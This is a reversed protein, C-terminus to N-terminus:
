IDDDEPADGKSKYAKTAYEGLNKLGVRMMVTTDQVGSTEDALYRDATLSVDYCEHTYNVTFISRRLGRETEVNSLDYIADGRLSWADSLLVTSGLRVQERSNPYETGRAGAAYLYYGDLAVDGWQTQAYLEHRESALTDSDVQFRYSLDHKGNDFSAGVAGVYDSSREELGSGNPFDNENNDFFNYSQGLFSTLRGGSYNYLGAKLGYAVHSQDEVRDLGTFRNGDLINTADLQVDQSDENPIKISNSVDPAAYVTAVPELKIQYKDFSSKMPYSATLQVNPIFRGLQQNEDYAANMSHAVSNTVVYGDVRAGVESDLVLGLPAIDRRGWSARSSARWMDQGNGDRALSLISADVDWRGGLLGNPNGLWEGEAYPLINPQDVKTTRLDQFAEAKIIAYDRDEFREAYIDNDLIYDDSFAYQRLYQEDTTLNIDARARWNRNIDWGGKGFIHGRVEDDKSVAAGAVSDTRGSSTISADSEFYANEWRKRFENRLLANQKTTPMVTFTTDTSPSIAWYYPQALFGGLESNYGFSPTLLGSKQEISGDPHSFYPTYFVPVPGAQLWAHRYVVRHEDKRLEVEKAHLQWPPRKTPDEACAVCATYTADKMRYRMESEKEGQRAWIRSGDALTTFLSNVLGRRMKDSLEVSQANHVDGSVDRIVVNGEASAFDDKLNYVVKDARLTRGEQVLEVNGKLTVIRSVQDYDVADAAYDVPSPQQKQSAAPAAPATTPVSPKEAPMVAQVPPKNTKTYPPQTPIAAPANQAASQAQAVVIDEDTPNAMLVSEPDYNGARAGANLAMASGSALLMMFFLRSIRVSGM